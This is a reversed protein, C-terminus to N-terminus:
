EAPSAPRSSAPGASLLSTATRKVPFLLSGHPAKQAPVDERELVELPVFVEPHELDAFVELVEGPVASVAVEESLLRDDGREVLGAGAGAQRRPRSHVP